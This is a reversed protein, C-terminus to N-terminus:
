YFQLRLEIIKEAQISVPLWGSEHVSHEARTELSAQCRWQDYQKLSRLQDPDSGAASQIIVAIFAEAAYVFLLGLCCMWIRVWLATFMRHALVLFKDVAGQM